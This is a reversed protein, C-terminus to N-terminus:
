LSWSYSVKLVLQRDRTAFDGLGPADWGQNYVLFLDSSAKYQWGVRLNLAAVEASENYQFFADFGLTPSLAVELRQRWLNTEFEGNGVEIDNHNWSTSTQFFRSPRWRVTINWALRKGDFFDGGVIHGQASLTRASSTGGFIGADMWEYEGMPLVVGDFIEFDEFLREFRYQTFLGAWGGSSFNVGFLDLSADITETTGDELTFVDWEAEFFFDRVGEIDPRPSWRVEGFTNRRGPRLVFGLDPVFEEEIELAAVEWSWFDGSFEAGLGGSFGDSDDNPGDSAAVYSWLSLNDNPKWEGDFGMVRNRSGDAADRETVLLGVNSREGLNRKIRVTGWDTEPIADLENEPDAPLSGTRAGLIGLSWPGARGALRAGYDLSVQRGDDAIGIRRSFFINLRPGVSPGFRFIGANELFFDRKEPLFLSFRTLNVKLEDVETEAFDTNVTLDLVLGRTVGWKLDIGTESDEDSTKVGDEDVSRSATASIYPEVRLDRGTNLGRLGTLDGAKSLRFLDAERGIPAWFTIENKRKIIRRVQLGWTDSNPDFRLGAFPIAYETAWGQANRRSRVDWIGDWDTSFDRGEDTVYGDTRSSNPNTELFYANRRDLFTDLLVVLADDRSLPSDLGMEKGIIEGAERDRAHIGIYLTEATYVVRIETTETAPELEEPERQTFGGSVQARSWAPEDLVGDLTIAEEIRLAQIRPRDQGLEITAAAVGTDDEGGAEAAAWEPDPLEAATAPFVGVGLATAALLAARLLVPRSLAPRLLAPRLLAARQPIALRRRSVATPDPRTSGEPLPTRGAPSSLEGLCASPLAAPNLTM